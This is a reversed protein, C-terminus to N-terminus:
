GKRERWKDVITKLMNKIDITLGFAGPKIEVSSLIGKNSSVAQSSFHHYLGNLWAKGVKEIEDSPISETETLGTLSELAERYLKPIKVHEMAQETSTLFDRPERNLTLFGNIPLTFHAAVSIPHVVKFENMTAAIRSQLIAGGDLSTDAFDSKQVSTSISLTELRKNIAPLTASLDTAKCLIAIIEFGACYAHANNSKITNKM